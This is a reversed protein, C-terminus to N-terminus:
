QNTQVQIDFIGEDNPYADVGSDKGKCENDENNKYVSAKNFDVQKLTAGIKVKWKRQNNKKM